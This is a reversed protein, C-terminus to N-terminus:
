RMSQQVVAAASANGNRDVLSVAIVDPQTGSWTRSTKHAPLIETAWEGGTRTQVLWLWATEDAAPMWSLGVSGDNATLQPKSHRTGGLWPSGPILAPQNYVEYELTADLDSNRMLSKMNWHIHGATAAGQKRTLRIQNVIEEAKWRNNTKTTDMGPWLHRGKRNQAAWWKLLVPFSQDPPEIGWYLPPAFYAM